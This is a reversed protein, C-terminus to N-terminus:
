ENGKGGDKVKDRGDLMAKERGRGRKGEKRERRSLLKESM